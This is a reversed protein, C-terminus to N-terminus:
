ATQEGQSNPPDSIVLGSVVLLNNDGSQWIRSRTARALVICGHSALELGPNEVEDGHILFSGRGFTQTDKYPTLRLVYPGHTPSLTPPGEILWLGQPIPGVNAVAEMAPNNVGEGHGSYGMDVQVGDKTLKGTGQEYQWM